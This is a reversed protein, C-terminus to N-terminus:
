LYGYVGRVSVEGAYVAETKGDEKRVLLEGKENIGLATGTHERGPELVRVTRGRNVLFRSYEEKLGTFDGTRAYIQFCDEFHKMIEAILAARNWTRGSELCLSSARSSLEEPIDTMNVNIGTGIVVYHIFDVEASMETLIGCIKKGGVIVDNPWKIMAPLGGAEVARAVALAMVLTLSPAQEPLLDPKLLLSMYINGEAPSSWNRGRRGRGSLQREVVVLAGNGGEKEGLAKAQINTSDTERCYLVPRGAWKTALRSEIEEGSLVDPTETLRYGKNRQAEIGYGEEKLRSVAKWVATRSVGLKESLQQGSVYGGSERLVKLIEAKM